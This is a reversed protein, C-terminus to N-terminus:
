GRTRYREPRGVLIGEVVAEEGSAELEDSIETVLRRAVGLLEGAVPHMVGDEQEIFVWFRRTM